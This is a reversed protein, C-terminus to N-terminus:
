EGTVTLVLRRAHGRTRHECLYLGQWTGLGPRGDVVPITESTKTIMSRIHSPMDDSGELTHTYNSDHEPAIRELWHELDRRATPDANEQIVLSCSTHTCFVHCLGAKIGSKAVADHVRDTIELFGRGRTRVSVLEQHQKM